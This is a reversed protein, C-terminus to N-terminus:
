ILKLWKNDGKVLKEKVLTDLNRKKDLNNLIFRNIGCDTLFYTYKIDKEQGIRKIRAKAQEMKGYDFTLSSFVIENCEQLNLSFSGCGYTIILPFDSDSKLFMKIAEKRSKPPTDGFIVLPFLPLNRSEIMGIEKLFNTFIIVKKGRCYDALANMKNVDTAAILNLKQLMNIISSSDANDTYEKLYKNKIDKYEYEYTSSNPEIWHIEETVKKDFELDCEFVYPNIMKTLMSSNVDSFQYFSKEKRGKKKYTIKKFFSNLFEERGMGIIKPSLFYMQNYLDWENKTLPTGNLILAYECLKRLYCLRKFRITSDNKIFISEDAIIMEKGYNMGRMYDCLNLYKSDSMSLTEYGVIKYEGEYKWKKFEDEINSKCSFPCVYILLNVKNYEALKLAVRTKGTGMKMFLAGVKLRSFKDFATRQQETM